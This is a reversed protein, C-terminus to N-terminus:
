KLLNLLGTATDLVTNAGQQAKRVVEQQTAQVLRASLDEHPDRVSGSLQVTTWLYGDQEPENFVLAGVGALLRGASRAVGVRIRGDIQDGRVLFGGQLRLLGESELELHSITLVGAKWAFDASSKQLTAQRFQATATFVALQDLIPLAELRAEHLEVHGHAEWGDPVSPSGGIHVNGTALGQLRGRWDPSLFDQSPLGDFNADVSLEKAGDLQQNGSFDIEGGGEASANAQTITLAHTNTKLVFQTLNLAPLKAQTLKGKRGTIDWGHDDQRPWATLEAGELRGSSAAQAGGWSLGLDAVQIKGIEVKTPLLKALSGPVLSATGESTDLGPAAPEEEQRGAAPALNAQVKGLDVTEIRWVGHWLARLNLEARIEDVTLRTWPSPPEGLGELAASYVESGQWQLPDLRTDAHLQAGAKRELFHRFEPGRLFGDLWVRVGFLGAVLLLLFSPIAIAWFHSRQRRKGGTSAPPVPLDSSSTSLPPM